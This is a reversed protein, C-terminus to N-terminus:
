FRVGTTVSLARGPAPVWMRGADYYLKDTLNYVNVQLNIADSLRYGATADYSHYSPVFVRSTDTTRLLRDDVYRAGGGLSLTRTLQYTTWLNLAHKPVNLLGTGQQTRNVSAVYKSALRSYGGVLNWRETVRGTVNVEGGQVRQRGTLITGLGPNLPDATRANTKDTRFLAFSTLVRQHFGEWKTGVEYTRSREPPLSSAANLADNSLNETSPNFSTGYSAYVNTAGTPKVVVSGGGSVADVKAPAFGSTREAARSVSDTYEPRYRDVRVNGSLEVHRGLTATEFAYAGLSTARVARTITPLITSHFDADATPNALDVIKPYAKNVINYGGRLSRERIAEAGVVLNHRVAGTHFATTLNTQSTAIDNEFRHTKPSRAGTTPNVSTVIRDVDSGGRTFQTLLTTTGRFRHSARATFVDSDIDEFDLSRLGFFRRTDVKPVANFNEIGYAPTNDQEVHLYSLTLQTPRGVGLALSPAVGWTKGGIVENDAVGSSNTVANVRVAANRLGLAGLPQNLDITARRQDATGLTIDGSRAARLQPAKTVLNITGGTSGRGSVSSSPGKTVEVQELNFSERAYGSVDRVGDVFIDNSASFGRINFNDGPMAGGGEGANITIGPVNRVVDRVSTAAQAKIQEQGVVTITRPVDVLPQTYKPSTVAATRAGTVEVQALETAPRQGDRPRVVVAGTGTFVYTLRTGELLRALAQQPTFRGAVGRTTMGAVSAPLRVALGTAQEYARLAPELEGAAIEFPQAAPAAPQAARPEVSQARAVSPGIAATAAVLAGTLTRSSRPLSAPASAVDRRPRTLDDTM